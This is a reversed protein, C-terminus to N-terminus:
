NSIHQFTLHIQIKYWLIELIQNYGNQSATSHYSDKSLVKESFLYYRTFLFIM